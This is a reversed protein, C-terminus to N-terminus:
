EIVRYEWRERIPKHTPRREAQILGQAVLYELAFADAQQLRRLNLQRALDARSHWGSGLANLSELM